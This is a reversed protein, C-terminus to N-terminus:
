FTSKGFLFGRLPALKYGYPIDYPLSSNQQSGKRCQRSKRGVHKGDEVRRLATPLVDHMSRLQELEGDLVLM